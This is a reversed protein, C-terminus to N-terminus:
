SKLMKVQGNKKDAERQAHSQRYFFNGMEIKDSFLVEVVSWHPYKNTKVIKYGVKDNDNSM